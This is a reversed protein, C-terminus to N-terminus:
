TSSTEGEECGAAIINCYQWCQECSDSTPCTHHGTEPSPWESWGCEEGFRAISGRVDVQLQNSALGRIYASLAPSAISTDPTPGSISIISGVTTQSLCSRFYFYFDNSTLMNLNGATLLGFWQPSHRLKILHSLLDCHSKIHGNSCWNCLPSTHLGLHYKVCLAEPILELMSNLLTTFIAGILALAM